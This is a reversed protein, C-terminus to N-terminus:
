SLNQIAKRPLACCFQTYYIELVQAKLLFPLQATIDKYQLRLAKNDLNAGIKGHIVKEYCKWSMMKDIRQDDEDLCTILMDIGYSDCEGKLCNLAHFTFDKMLM